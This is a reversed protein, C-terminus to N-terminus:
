RRRQFTPDNKGITFLGNPEEVGASVIGRPRHYKFSRSTLTKGNALLASALTDGAFGSLPKGDYTFTVSKSRDIRGGKDLRRFATM